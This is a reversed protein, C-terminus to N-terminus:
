GHAYYTLHSMYRVFIRGAQNLQATEISSGDLQPFDGLQYAESMMDYGEAVLIELFRQYWELETSTGKVGFEGCLM